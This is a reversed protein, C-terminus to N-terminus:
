ESLVAYTVGGIENLEMSDRWFDVLNNTKLHAHIAERLKGTGRGHVIKVVREGRALEQSIFIDLERVAEDVGSGHLDIQTVEGGMEAGVILSENNM